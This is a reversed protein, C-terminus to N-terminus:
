LISELGGDDVVPHDLEEDGVVGIKEFKKLDV